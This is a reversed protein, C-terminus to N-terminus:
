RLPRGVVAELQAFTRHYTYTDNLLTNQERQYTDLALSLETYATSGIQYRNQALSLAQRATEVIQIQLQVTRWDLVLQSLFSTVNNTITLEARRVEHLANQLQISSSEINQERSFGDWLTLSFGANIGIASRTFSFPWTRAPGSADTPMNTSGGIGTSLNFSPIYGRGRAQRTSIEAVHQQARNAALGANHARADALLEALQFKPEVVPLDTTLQVDGPAPVGIQEFLRTKEISASNHARLATLEQRRLSVEANKTELSIGSGIREKASALEFQLQQSKVLTDQLDANRVAQVATFYQLTVNQRLTQASAVVNADSADLQASARGPQLLSQMDYGVSVGFNYNSGLVDSAAGFQQGEIIVPIGERWSLGLGSTVRPFFAGRATRIGLSTSKRNNVAELYVPNYRTALTIAEDLTLTTIRDTGQAGASIASTAVLLVLTLRRM